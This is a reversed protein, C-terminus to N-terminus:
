LKNSKSSYDVWFAGPSCVTFEDEAEKIIWDGQNVLLWERGNWIYFGWNEDEQVGDHRKIRFLNYDDLGVKFCWTIFNKSMEEFLFAEMEINKFVVRSM